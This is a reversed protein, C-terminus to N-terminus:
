GFWHGMLFGWIFPVILSKKSWLIMRQSITERDTLWLFLDFLLAVITVAWIFLATMNSM